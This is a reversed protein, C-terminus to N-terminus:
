YLRSARIKKSVELRYGIFVQYLNRFDTNIVPINNKLFSGGSFDAYLGGYFREGNYGLGTHGSLRFVGSSHSNQELQLLTNKQEVNSYIVGLGPSAGVSLYFNKLFVFNYFYGINFGIEYNDSKTISDLLPSNDNNFQYFRYNTSAILSGTSKLQRETQSTISRLSFKSNFKYGTTGELAAYRLNNKQLYIDGDKWGPVFDKTNDIYFGEIYRFNFHNFWNPRIVGFGFNFGGTKGKEKEFTNLGLDTPTFNYWVSISKFDASFKLSTGSNTHIDYSTNNSNLTFFEFYNKMSLRVNMFQDIRDIYGDEIIYDSTSRRISDGTIVQLYAPNNETTITQNKIFSQDLTNLENAFADLNKFDYLVIIKDSTSEYVRKALNRSRYDIIIEKANPLLMILPLKRTLPYKFDRESLVIKGHKKEYETIMSEATIDALQDTNNNIYDNDNRLVYGKNLLLKYQKEKISQTPVYGYLKRLKRITSDSLNDFNTNEYFIVYGDKRFEEIIKKTNDFFQPQGIDTMGIFKISKKSSNINTYEANYSNLRDVTKLNACSSLISSILIFLILKFNM